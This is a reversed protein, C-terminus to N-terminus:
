TTLNRNKMTQGTHSQRSSQKSYRSKNSKSYTKFSAVRSNTSEKMLSGVAVDKGSAKDMDYQGRLRTLKAGISINGLVDIFKKKSGYDYESKLSRLDDDAPAFDQGNRNNLLTRGDAGRKVAAASAFDNMHGVRSSGANSVLDRAVHANVQASKMM